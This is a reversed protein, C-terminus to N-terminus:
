DEMFNKYIRKFDKLVFSENHGPYVIVDDPLQIVKRISEEMKLRSGGPFDTRGITDSFIFDGSFLIKEQPCYLGISGETHGPFFLIQFVLNGVQLQFDENKVLIDAPPSLHPLYFVESLNKISDTLMPADAFHILIPCKKQEKVAANGSIHDFHGHTNVIYLINLDSIANRFEQSYAGPDIVLADETDNAQVIYTNSSIPGQELTHIKM